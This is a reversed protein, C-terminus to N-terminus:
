FLYGCYEKIKPDTIVKCIDTLSAWNERKAQNQLDNFMQNCYADRTQGDSPAKTSGTKCIKRDAYDMAVSGTFTDSLDAENGSFPICWRNAQMIPYKSNTIVHCHKKLVNDYMILWSVYNKGKFTVTQVASLRNAIDNAPQEAQPANLQALLAQQKLEDIQAQAAELRRREAEERARAQEAEAHARENALQEELKRREATAKEQEEILIKENACAQEM